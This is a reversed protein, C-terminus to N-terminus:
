GNACTDVVSRQAATPPQPWVVNVSGFNHVEGGGTGVRVHIRPLARLAAARSTYFGVFAVVGPRFEAIVEAIPTGGGGIARVGRKQLCARATAARQEALSAATPHPSWVSQADIRVVSSRSGRRVANVTV